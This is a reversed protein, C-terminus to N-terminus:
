GPPCETYVPGSVAEFSELCQASTTIPGDVSFDFATAGLVLAYRGAPFTFNDKDPRIAVMEHNENLPSVKFEYSNGRVRWSGDVNKHSAKGSVLTTARALRAVVRIAAKEPASNVLDRRFIVFVIKGDPLITSSPTNIEASLAVRPDPAKIPLPALEHLRGNSVAYVGYTSPLPLGSQQGATREADLHQEAVQGTKAVQVDLRGAIAIYLVIMFLASGALLMLPLGIFWMWVRGRALAAHSTEREPFVIEVRPREMPAIAHRLVTPAHGTSRLPVLQADYLGTRDGDIHAVRPVPLMAKSPAYGIDAPDTTLRPLQMNNLEGRSCDVEVRKIATELALMAERVGLPTLSRDKQWIERKLNMRALEYVLRRLQRPDHAASEIIELLTSQYDTPAASAPVHSAERDRARENPM